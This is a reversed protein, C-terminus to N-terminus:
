EERIWVPILHFKNLEDQFKSHNYTEKFFKHNLAYYELLKDNYARALAILVGTEEDYTDKKHCRAEFDEQKKIVIRKNDDDIGFEKIRRAIVKNGNMEIKFLPAYVEEKTFSGKQPRNPKPIRKLWDTCYLRCKGDFNILCDCVIGDVKIEKTLMTEFVAVKGIYAPNTSYTLEVLSNPKFVEKPQKPTHHAIFKFNRDASDKRYKLVDGKDTGTLVKLCYYDKYTGIVLCKTTDHPNIISQIIDNVKFM